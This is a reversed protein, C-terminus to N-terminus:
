TFYHFFEPSIKGDKIVIGDSELLEIKTKLGDFLSYGGLKGSHSIVKYCPYKEPHKNQKLVSAIARPHVGCKEALIKYTTVKGKPIQKLLHLPDTM